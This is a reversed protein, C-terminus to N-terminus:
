QIPTKLTKQGNYTILLDSIQLELAAQRVMENCTGTENQKTKLNYCFRQGSRNDVYSYHTSNMVDGYRFVVNKEEKARLDMGMMWPNQLGYLSLITPAVDMLGGPKHIVTGKKDANPLRIMLPITKDALKMEMSNEDIGMFKGVEKNKYMITTNHDGYVVIMSKNLLQSEKLKELFMGFQKDVYHVSKFYDGLTTGEYSGVAFSQDKPYYFPVHSSVMIMYAYFPKKEKAFIDAAQSFLEKDSLFPGLKETDKLKELSYFTDFGMEKHSVTRNWFSGNNGHFSIAHHTKKLQKAITSYENLPYRIAVSGM